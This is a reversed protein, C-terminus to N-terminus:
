APSRSPRGRARRSRSHPPSSRGQYDVFDAGVVPVWKPLYFRQHALIYGGVLLAALVVGLILVVDRAHKRIARTM